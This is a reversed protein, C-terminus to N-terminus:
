TMVESKRARSRTGRAVTVREYGSSQHDAAANGSVDATM